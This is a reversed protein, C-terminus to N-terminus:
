SLRQISDALPRLRTLNGLREQRAKITVAVAIDDLIEKNIKMGFQDALIFGEGGCTVNGGSTANIGPSFFVPQGGRICQVSCGRHTRGYGPNMIGMYCQADLIEGILSVEGQDIIEPLPPQPTSNAAIDGDAVGLMFCNGRSIKIGTATVTKGDFKRVYDDAGLKGIGALIIGTRDVWLTPYPHFGIRGKLTVPTGTEWRGGGRSAALGGIAAGTGALGLFGLPLAKLLFRRDKQPLPGYGVYFDKPDSM